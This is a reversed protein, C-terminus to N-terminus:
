KRTIMISNYNSSFIPMNSKIKLWREFMGKDPKDQAGREGRGEEVRVVCVRKKRAVIM